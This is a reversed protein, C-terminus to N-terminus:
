LHIKGGTEHERNATKDKSRPGTALTLHIGTWSLVTRLTRYEPNRNMSLAQYLGERNLGTERALKSIGGKMGVVKKLAVLFVRPDDDLLADALYNRIDKDTTLTKGLVEYFPTYPTNKKM